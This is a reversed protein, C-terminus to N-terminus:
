GNTLRRQLDARQQDFKRFETLLSRQSCGLAYSLIRLPQGSKWGSHAYRLLEQPLKAAPRRLRRPVPPMRDIFERERELSWLLAKSIDRVARKM